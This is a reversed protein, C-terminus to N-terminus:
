PLEFSSCQFFEPVQPKFSKQSSASKLKSTTM